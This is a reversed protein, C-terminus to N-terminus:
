RIFEEGAYVGDDAGASRVVPEQEAEAAIRQARARKAITPLDANGRALVSSESGWKGRWCAKAARKKDQVFRKGDWPWQLPAADNCQATIMDGLPASLSWVFDAGQYDFSWVARLAHDRLAYQTVRAQEKGKRQWTRTIFLYGEGGVPYARVGGATLEGGAMSQMLRIGEGYRNNLKMARGLQQYAYVGFQDHEIVVELDEHRQEPTPRCSSPADDWAMGTVRSTQFVRVTSPVLEPGLAARVTAVERRRLSTGPCGMPYGDYQAERDVFSLDSIKREANLRLHWEREQVFDSEDAAENIVTFVAYRGGESVDSVSVTLDDIAFPFVDGASWRSERMDSRDSLSVHRMAMGPAFYQQVLGADGDALAHAIAHVATGDAVSLVSCGLTAMLLMVYRM